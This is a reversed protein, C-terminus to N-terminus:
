SEQTQPLVLEVQYKQNFSNVDAQTTIQAFDALAEYSQSLLRVIDDSVQGKLRAKLEDYTLPMPKEQETQEGSLGGIAMEERDIMGGEAKSDVGENIDLAKEISGIDMIAEGQEQLIKNAIRYIQVMDPKYNPDEMLANLVKQVVEDQKSTVNGIARSLNFKRYTNLVDRRKKRQLEKVQSDYDSKTKDLEGIREDYIRTIQDAAYQTEFPKNAKIKAVELAAGTTVMDGIKKDRSAKATAMRKDLSGAIDGGIKGLTPSATAILGKIGKGQSPAGALEFGRGALRLFDSVTFEPKAMPVAEEARQRLNQILDISDINQIGRLDQSYKGPEDVMGRKPTDLGSTIGTGRSDVPGGKRFMPRNLAKSM